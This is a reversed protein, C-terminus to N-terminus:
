CGSRYCAACQESSYCSSCCRFRCSSNATVTVNTGATGATYTGDPKRIESASVNVTLGTGASVVGGTFIVGSDSGGAGGVSGLYAVSGIASHHALEKRTKADDLDITASANNKILKGGIRVGRRNLGRVTVFTAM